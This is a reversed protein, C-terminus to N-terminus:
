ILSCDASEWLFIADKKLFFILPRHCRPPPLPRPLFGQRGLSQLHTTSGLLLISSLPLKSLRDGHAYYASKKEFADDDVPFNQNLTASHSLAQRHFFFNTAAQAPPQLCKMGRRRCNPFNNGTPYSRPRSLRPPYNQKFFFNGFFPVVRNQSKKERCCPRAQRSSEWRSMLSALVSTSPLSCCCRCRRPPRSCCSCCCCCCAM